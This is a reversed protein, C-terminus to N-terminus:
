GGPKVYPAVAFLLREERRPDAEVRVQRDFIM